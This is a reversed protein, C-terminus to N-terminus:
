MEQPRTQGFFLVELSVSPAWRVVDADGVARERAARAPRRSASATSRSQTLMRFARHDEDTTWM